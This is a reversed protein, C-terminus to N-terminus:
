QFCLAEKTLYQQRFGQPLLDNDCYTIEEAIKDPDTENFPNAHITLLISDEHFVIVRCRNPVTIEMHPASLMVHEGEENVVEIRGKILLFPHTTKHTRTCWLQGAPVNGQRVYLGETFHHIMEFDAQPLLACEKALVDMKRKHTLHNSLHDM